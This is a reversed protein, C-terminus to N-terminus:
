ISIGPLKQLFYIDLLCRRLFRLAWRILPAVPSFLYIFIYLLDLSLTHLEYPTVHGCISAHVSFYAFNDNLIRSLMRCLIVVILLMTSFVPDLYFPFFYFLFPPAFNFPFSLFLFFSSLVQLCPPLEPQYLSRIKQLDSLERPIGYDSDM